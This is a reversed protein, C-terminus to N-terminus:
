PWHEQDFEGLKSGVALEFHGPEVSQRCPFATQRSSQRRARSEAKDWDRINDYAAADRTTHARFDSGFVARIQQWERKHGPEIVRAVGDRPVIRDGCRGVLTHSKRFGDIEEGPSEILKTTTSFVIHFVSWGFYYLGVRGQLDPLADDM